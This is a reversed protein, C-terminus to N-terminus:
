IDIVKWGSGLKLRGSSAPRRPGLREISIQYSDNGDRALIISDGPMANRRRLFNTMRTLRYENRTGGFFRNNYYIFSFIWRDQWDDRFTLACRPNKDRPNLPPFFSLLRSDKPVLM